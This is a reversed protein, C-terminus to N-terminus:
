SIQVTKINCFEKIGYHSLERGYGSEKTGGFPLRPDSVVMGNVFVAGSQIEEKAIREGRAIDATFVAGGLGFITDNAVAIAEAEDKVKILSAVPGFFEEDYAPMGKRVGGLVTPPYFAGVGQPKQGGLLLEAGANLSRVVQEHLEDRLDVRAMPGITTISQNPDGVVASKMNHLFKEVFQDYVAEVVIFRKASICTQGCNLLRSTACISAASEIDADELIIYPDSGGLEIVSKKLVEGATAAVVKGAPASGTLAVGKVLPHHIVDATDRGPVLITRFINQPMGAERFIAEIALACGPVNSAHKLVGANGAMLAPAAFRFVQWFPFNWPMIALVIGIPQFTAFSKTAETEFIEDALMEETQVAYHRCVWACKTIEAIAGVKTKGMEDVMIQAFEEPREELIDAAKNMFVARESYSLRRWKEWDKQVENLIDNVALGSHENYEKILQETAPNISKMSM